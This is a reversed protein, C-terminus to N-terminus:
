ARYFGSTFTTPPSTWSRLLCPRRRFRPLRPWRHLGEVVSIDEAFVLSWADHLSQRRREFADTLADDTPMFFSCDSAPRTLPRPCSCFSLSTTPKFAWYCMPTFRSTSRPKSASVTGSQFTRFPESDGRTLDYVRTGQGSALPDVTLNYHADLPSYTNLDPHVFPCTIPSATTRWRWSIIATSCWNWPALIVRM